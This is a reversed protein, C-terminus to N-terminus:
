QQLEKMSQQHEHLPIQLSMKDDALSLKNQLHKQKKEMDALAEILSDRDHYARQLKRNMKSVLITWSSWHTFCTHNSNECEYKHDQQIERILEQQRRLEKVLIANEELSSKYHHITNKSCSYCVCSIQGCGSLEHSSM